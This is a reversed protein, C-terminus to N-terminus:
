KRENLQIINYFCALSNDDIWRHEDKVIRFFPTVHYYRFFLTPFEETMFRDIRKETVEIETPTPHVIKSPKNSLGNFTDEIRPEFDFAIDIYDPGVEIDAIDTFKANGYRRDVLVDLAFNGIRDQVPKNIGEMLEKEWQIGQRKMSSKIYIQYRNLDENTTDKWDVDFILREMTKYPIYNDSYQRDSTSKRIKAKDTGSFVVKDKSVGFVDSLINIVKDKNKIDTIVPVKSKWDMPSGEIWFDPCSGPFAQELANRVVVHEFRFLGDMAEKEGPQYANGSENLDNNIIDILEELSINTLQNQRQTFVQIIKDAGFKNKLRKLDSLRINPFIFSDIFLIDEVPIDFPLTYETNNVKYPKAKDEAVKFAITNGGYGKLNPTETAWVFDGDKGRGKSAGANAKLGNQKISDLNEDSTNHYLIKYGNIKTSYDPLKM